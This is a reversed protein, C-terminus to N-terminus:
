SQNTEQKSTVSGSRKFKIGYKKEIEKVADLTMQMYDHVDKAEASLKRHMRYKDYLQGNTYM